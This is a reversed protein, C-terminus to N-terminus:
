PACGICRACVLRGRDPFSGGCCGWGSRGRRLEERRCLNPGAIACVVSGVVALRVFRGGECLHTFVIRSCIAAKASRASNACGVGWTGEDMVLPEATHVGMRVRIVGGTVASQGARAAARADCARGFAVFFAGGRTDMEVGRHCAFAERLMRRRGALAHAYADGLEHLLRTSGDIDTFLFTVTGSPLSSMAM